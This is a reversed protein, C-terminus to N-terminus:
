YLARNLIEYLAGEIMQDLIHAASFDQNDDMSKDTTTWSVLKRDLRGM